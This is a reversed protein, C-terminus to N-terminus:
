TRDHHYQVVKTGQIRVGEKKLLKIKEGKLGNYEGIEGNSKIVRHCPVSPDSNRAMLTGVARAAGPKGACYAIEKYSAVTGKPINQVCQYVREKFTM